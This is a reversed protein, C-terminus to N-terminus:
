WWVEQEPELLLRSWALEQEPPQQAQVLALALLQPAQVQPQVPRLREASAAAV